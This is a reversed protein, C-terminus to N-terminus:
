SSSEVGAALQHTGSNASYGFLRDIEHNITHQAARVKPGLESRDIYGRGALSSKLLSRGELVDLVIEDIGHQVGLV